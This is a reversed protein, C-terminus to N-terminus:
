SELITGEGQWEGAFESVDVEGPVQGLSQEVSCLQPFEVEVEEM